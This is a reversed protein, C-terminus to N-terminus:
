SNNILIRLLIDVLEEDLLNPIRQVLVLGNLHPVSNQRCEIEIHQGGRVGFVLLKPILSYSTM